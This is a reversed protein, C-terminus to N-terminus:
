PLGQEGLLDDLRKMRAIGEPHNGFAIFQFTIPRTEEFNAQWDGITSPKQTPSQLAKPDQGALGCLNETIWQGVDDEYPLGEWAGDTLILVTTPKRKKDGYTAMIKNLRPRLKTKLKHITRPRAKTMADVFDQVGQRKGPEVSITTEMDTFYLEIGDSDYGLVRWVLVELLFSAERWHKAMTSGNDVVFIIDRHLYHPLLLDENIKGKVSKRRDRFGILGGLTKSKELKELEDIVQFATLPELASSLATAATPDPAQETEHLPAFTPLSESPKSNLRLSELLAGRHVSRQATPKIKTSLLRAESKFRSRTITSAETRQERQFHRRAMDSDLRNIGGESEQDIEAKLDLEQLFSEIFKPVEKDQSELNRILESCHESVQKAEWRQVAPVVLMHNDVMDLIAATLGDARRASIRLYEHWDKVVDLVKDNDHFIDQILGTNLKAHAHRRIADYQKVGQKGLVVYTAAISFVCGLSWVDSNQLVKDPLTATDGVDLWQAKEPAAYTRTGGYVEAKAQAKGDEPALQIWSDGPDALKFHDEVRLINEPKIDGHWFDYKRGAIDLHHINTLTAAVENMSEYFSRVEDPLVPPEEESIAGNLDFDAYELLINYTPQDPDATSVYCGYYQIMGSQAGLARFTKVEKEFSQKLSEPFEKLAFRWFSHQSTSSSQHADASGDQLLLSNDLGSAIVLEAPIYVKYLRARDDSPEQGIGYPQIPEKAYFPIIRHPHLKEDLEPGLKFVFPCWATQAERWRDFFASYSDGLRDELEDKDLKTLLEDERLPLDNDELRRFLPLLALHGLELLIFLIRCMAAIRTPSIDPPEASLKEHAERMVHYLTSHVDPYRAQLAKTLSEVLIFKRGDASKREYFKILRSVEDHPAREGEGELTGSADRASPM